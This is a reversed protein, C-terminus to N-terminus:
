GGTKDQSSDTPTITPHPSATPKRKNDSSPSSKKKPPGKPVPTRKGDMEDADDDDEDEDSDPAGDEEEEKEDDSEEDESDDARDIARLGEKGLVHFDWAELPRALDRLILMDDDEDDKDKKVPAIDGFYEMHYAEEEDISNVSSEDDEKLKLKSPPGATAANDVKKKKKKTSATDGSATTATSSAAANAPPPPFKKLTEAAKIANHCIQKNKEEIELKRKRRFEVDAEYQERHAQRTEEAGRILEAGKLREDRCALGQQLVTALFRDAAASVVAGVTGDIYGVGQRNLIRRSLSTPVTPAGISDVRNDDRDHLQQVFRELLQDETLVAAAAAEEPTQKTSQSPGTTSHGNTAALNRSGKGAALLRQRHREIM